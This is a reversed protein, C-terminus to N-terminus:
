SIIERSEEAIFRLILLNMLICASVSYIPYTVDVVTADIIFIMAITVICSFFVLITYNLRGINLSEQWNGEGAAKKRGFFDDKLFQWLEPSYYSKPLAMFFASVNMLILIILCFEAFLKNAFLGAFFLVFAVLIFAGILPNKGL